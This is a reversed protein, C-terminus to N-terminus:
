KEELKKLIANHTDYKQSNAVVVRSRPSGGSPVKVRLEDGKKFEKDTKYYYTKDVKKGSKTNIKIGVVHEKKEM